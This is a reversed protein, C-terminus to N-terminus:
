KNINLQKNPTGKQFWSERTVGEWQSCVLAYNCFESLPVSYLVEALLERPLVALPDM